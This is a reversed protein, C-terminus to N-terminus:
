SAWSFKLKLEVQVKPQSSRIQQLFKWKQFTSMINNCRNGKKGSSDLWGAVRM